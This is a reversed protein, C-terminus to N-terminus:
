LNIQAFFYLQCNRYIPRSLFNCICYQLIASGITLDRQVSDFVNPKYKSRPDVTISRWIVSGDSINIKNLHVLTLMFNQCLRVNTKLKCTKTRSILIAYSSVRQSNLFISNISSSIYNIIYINFNAFYCLFISFSFCTSVKGFFWLGIELDIKNRYKRLLYYIPTVLIVKKQLAYTYRMMMYNLFLVSEELENLVTLLILSTMWFIHVSNWKQQVNM